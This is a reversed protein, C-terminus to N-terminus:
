KKGASKVVTLLSGEIDPVTKGGSSVTGIVTGYAHITDGRAVKALDEGQVLRLICGGAACAKKEEILLVTHGQAVRTELVEGDIVVRQGLKSAPDAGYVDFAVPTKADLAKAGADLSAVRTVRARMTRPALPPANATITLVKEGEAPLEVRVGFHGKEDLAVNQGDITLTGGPKTQGAVNATTRDTYLERGPADVHLPVVGTHVVLQGAEPAAAGKPKISFPIKKDLAKQEDSPGDVEASVDIPHAAKGNADLAVPKGDVSIETGPLAEVRVTIVPPANTLTTLDAKVRYAVPVHIKVSEDRGSAPRDIQMTLDNDGISLPAPLPLVAGGAQVTASSAGLTITTGDPCSECRIKLSEKGSEDLQPQASLPAGSRWIFLGAGGAVVAVLVFVIAVVAIAPIGKKAPKRPAEPLPEMVLPAPAPVIPPAAQRQRSSSPPPGGLHPQSRPAAAIRQDSAPHRPQEPPPAHGAPPANGLPAIGPMAVGILTGAVQPPGAPAPDRTPAIGPIAVGMMTKQATPFAPPPQQTPAQQQARQSAPPLDVAPMGLMTGAAGLSVTGGLPHGPPQVPPTSAPNHVPNPATQVPNPATQVPNPATQVPNPATQVPQAAAQAASPLSTGSAKAQLKAAELVDSASIGGLMLTKGFTPEAAPPAPAPAPAPAAAVVPAVVVPAVAVAKEELMPPAGGPNPATKAALEALAAERVARAREAVDPDNMTKALPKPPPAGGGDAPPMVKRTAADSSTPGLLDGAPDPPPVVPTPREHGRPRTPDNSSAIAVNPANPETVSQPPAVKTTESGYPAPDFLTKGFTPPVPAPPAVAHGIATPM